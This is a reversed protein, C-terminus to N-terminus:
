IEHPCAKLTACLILECLGVTFGYLTDYHLRWLAFVPQFGLLSVSRPLAGPLSLRTLSTRYPCFCSWNGEWRKQQQPSKANTGNTTLFFDGMTEGLGGYDWRIIYLYKGENDKKRYFIVSFVQATHFIM